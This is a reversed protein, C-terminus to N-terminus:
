AGRRRQRKNRATAKASMNARRCELSCTLQPGHIQKGCWVCPKWRLKGVNSRGSAILAKASQVRRALRCQPSCTKFWKANKREFIQGCIVCVNTPLPILLCNAVRKQSAARRMAIVGDPGIQDAYAQLKAVNSRIGYSSMRRPAGPISHLKQPDYLQRGREAQVARLEESSFPTRKRVQLRDRIDQLDIGHGKSLHQSLSRFTRTDNCWCCQQTRIARRIEDVAPEDLRAPPSRRADKLAVVTATHGVGARTATKRLSRSSGASGFSGQARM